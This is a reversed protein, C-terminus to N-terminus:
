KLEKKLQSVREKFVRFAEKMMDKPPLQGYSEIFFNFQGGKVMEYSALGSQWKIHDKGRGLQAIAELKIRQNETLKVLPIKDYAPVVKPDNSKLDESYITGPGKKDLTLIAVCKGCGEFDCDCESMFNYSGLETKLPMLGLRHALIEDNLISSNEEFRVKEVAMVPVESIIGRRLANALEVDIGSVEFNLIDGKNKTIKVKMKCEGEEKGERQDVDGEM